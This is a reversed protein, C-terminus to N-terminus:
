HAEATGGQKFKRIFIALVPGALAVVEADEAEFLKRWELM